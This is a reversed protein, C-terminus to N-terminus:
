GYQAFLDVVQQQTAQYSLNGIYISKM